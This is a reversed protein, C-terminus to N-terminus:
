EAIYVKMGSNLSQVAAISAYSVAILQKYPIPPESGERITHIFTQWSALHGKNQSLRSHLEKRQGNEVMLLSRFDNLVAVKGGSFVELYEKPVSKDGNALYAISGLSGDPYEMTILVNDQKYIGNERLAQAYITDPLQGVLYTIFDIFHCGEGIIRGGGQEPDHQWHNPPLFGANIRYHAYIPESRNELFRKLELSFPAFRRNFGVTLYPHNKKSLSKEIKEVDTDLIALPKECYVHKNHDLCNIVQRAHENHRTLIAVVNITPDNLVDKESSSAHLFHFKQAANQASSGSASVITQLNVNKSKVVAPLFVANAYNGAGLVGLSLPEGSPSVSNETERIRIRTILGEKNEPPYTLLVGLFPQQNRGTILEYAAPANDIPFRHTILDKVTIKNSGILNIFAELNRGETWRVYGIPYDQSNEEYLPDYRGPGSSRSVQFFLEKEYYLKRPIDLGVVGVSIVHARDRAIQGALEVTDSSPTDACILIADFGRGFTFSQCTKEANPRIIAQVGMKKARKIREPNIDIGLVNCGASQAIKTMILGLLGLGIIAVSEGVQVQALHFGNLAIAGLTAFAGSEEDVNDPIKALLNQPIVNYEAHVAHGGGACVVRDGPQFGQLGDGCGIITGCSSYGLSIPQELRNFAAGITPLLGERDAKERMQKVLDPRSRAKNILNKEAFEVVMRETGASVLSAAVKVLATKPRLQPIPVDAVITKGNRMNQLVQKM